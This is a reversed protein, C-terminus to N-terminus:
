AKSSRGAASVPVSISRLFPYLLCLEKEACVCVCVCLKEHTVRAEGLLGVLELFNSCFVCFVSKGQTNLYLYNRQDTHAKRGELAVYAV